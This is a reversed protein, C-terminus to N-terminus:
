AILPTPFPLQGPHPPSCPPTLSWASAQKGPLTKQALLSWSGVQAERIGKRQMQSQKRKKGSPTPSWSAAQGRSSARGWSPAQGQSSDPGLKSCGWLSVVPLVVPEHDDVASVGHGERGGHQGEHQLVQLFGDDKSTGLYHGPSVPSCSPRGSAVPPTPVTPSGPRM